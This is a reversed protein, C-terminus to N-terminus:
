SNSRGERAKQELEKRRGKTDGSDHSVSLASATPGEDRDDTVRGNRTIIRMIMMERRRSEDHDRRQSDRHGRTRSKSAGASKSGSESTQRVALLSAVLREYVLVMMM